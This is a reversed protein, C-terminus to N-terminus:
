EKKDNETVSAPFLIDLNFRENEVVMNVKGSYADAINVISKTGFGHHYKDSKTTQPLGDVFDPSASCRNDIHVLVYGKKEKISFSIFRTEESEELQREIANDLANGFLAAIDTSSMFSIKAGDVLYSFAINRKKCLFNKESIIVDLVPNGTKASTDYIDISNKLDSIYAKRAEKDDIKELLAVQHKLDHCKENIIAITEEFKENHKKESHIIQDLITNEDLLRNERLFGFQIVVSATCSILAYTSCCVRLGKINIQVELYKAFINDVILSLLVCVLLTISSVVFARIDFIDSYFKDRRPWIFILFFATCVLCLLLIDFIIFEAWVPLSINFLYRIINSLSYSAHQVAYAGAAFYFASLFNTEFSFYVGIALMIVCLFFFIGNIYPVRAAFKVIFFWVINEALIYSVVSAYARLIFNNKRPQFVVFFCLGIFLEVAFVNGYIAYYLNGYVQQYLM